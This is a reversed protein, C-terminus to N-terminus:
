KAGGEAAPAATAAAGTTAPATAAATAAKRWAATVNEAKSGGACLDDLAKKGGNPLAKFWTMFGDLEAGSLLAKAKMYALGNQKDNLGNTAAGHAGSGASKASAGRAIPTGDEAVDELDQSFMDSAGTAMLVAAVLARKEAMRRLTNRTDWVSLTRYKNELNNASASCSALIQGGMNLLECVAVVEYIGQTEGEVEVKVRGSPGDTYQTGKWRIVREPDDATVTTRLVPVLGFAMCLAEAGAKWLSKKKAGPVVGYHVDEKMVADMAQQVDQVRSKLERSGIFVLSGSQPGTAVPAQLKVLASPTPSGEM